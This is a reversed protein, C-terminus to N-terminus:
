KTLKDILLYGLGAWGKRRFTELITSEEDTLQGHAVNQTPNDTRGLLYDVSVGLQEAINLLNVAMPESLNNEYKHIQGEGIGCNRALERQTWGRKIRENKIRDAMLPMSFERMSM